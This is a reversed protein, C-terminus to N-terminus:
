HDCERDTDFLDISENGTSDLFSTDEGKLHNCFSFSTTTAENIYLKITYDCRKRLDVNM